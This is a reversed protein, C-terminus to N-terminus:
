EYGLLMKPRKEPSSEEDAIMKLHMANIRKIRLLSSSFTPAKALIDNVNRVDNLDIESLNGGHQLFCILAKLHAIRFTETEAMKRALVAIDREELLKASTANNKGIKVYINDVEGTNTLAYLQNLYDEPRTARLVDAKEGLDMEQDLLRIWKDTTPFADPLVAALQEAKEPALAGTALAKILSAVAIREATDAIVYNGYGGSAMLREALGALVPVVSQPDNTNAQFIKALLLSALRRKEPHNDIQSSAIEPWQEATGSALSAAIDELSNRSVLRTLQSDEEAVSIGTTALAFLLFITPLRNM